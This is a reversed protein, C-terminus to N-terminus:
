QRTGTLRCLGRPRLRQADTVTASTLNMELSDEPQHDGDCDRIPTDSSDDRHSLGASSLPNASITSTTRSRTSRGARPCMATDLYDPSEESSSACGM